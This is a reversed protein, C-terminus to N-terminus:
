PMLYFGLAKDYLARELFECGLYNDNVVRVVVNKVIESRNADDLTFKVRIENGKVLNHPGLTTFGVGTMSVNKVQIDHWNRCAPLRSYQGRLNTSKRHARRFEFSISFTSKCKCRMKLQDRRGKFMAVSATKSFGCDPCVIVAIGDENVYVKRAEAM